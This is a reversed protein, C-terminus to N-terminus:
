RETRETSFGDWLRPRAELLHRLVVVAPPMEPNGSLGYHHHLGPTTNIENIVGGCKELPITPDCTIIDVGAFRSNIIRTARIALEKIEKCLLHTVDDDYDTRLESHTDSKESSKILVTQGERLVSEPILRQAHLMAQCDKGSISIEHFNKKGSTRRRINESDLLQRITKRGDGELRIGRRRAAHIIQNELVLIRYSEGGIFREVIIEKDYLSALAAANRGERYTKIHTTIGVGGSTGHAPKVVFFGGNEEIFTRLKKFEDCRFVTFRPIPIGENDLVRYCFPKNDALALVVPDDLQVIHNYIRTSREGSRVEWIGHALESFDASLINAAEEWITKYQRAREWVPVHAYKGITGRLKRVLRSRMRLWSLALDTPNRHVNSAM